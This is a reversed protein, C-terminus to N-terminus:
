DEQYDMRGMKKIGQVIHLAVTMYAEIQQENPEDDVYGKIGDLTDCVTCSGYEVMVYWHRSALCSSDGIVYILSGQWGGYNVLTIRTPCPSHDDFKVHLLRVVEEVISDYSPHAEAFKERLKPKGDMFRDVFEQIM